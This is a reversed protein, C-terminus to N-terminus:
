LGPIRGEVFRILIRYPCRFGVGPRILLSRDKGFGSIRLRAVAPARDLGYDLNCPSGASMAHDRYDAWATRFTRECAPHPSAGISFVLGHSCRVCFLVPRLATSGM